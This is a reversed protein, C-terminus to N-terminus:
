AASITQRLGAAQVNLRLQRSRWSLGLLVLALAMLWVSGPEPVDIAAAFQAGLIAHGATTPHVGDWFLWTDPDCLNNADELHQVCQQTVNKMGYKSPNAIVAGLTGFTDFQTIEVQNMSQDLETLALALAANFENTIYTMVADDMFEPTHGLDPMNPVLFHTAGENILTSIASKINTVGVEILKDIPLKLIANSFVDNPFAWVVFLSEDPKFCNTCNDAFKDVQTALGGQTGFWSRLDDPLTTNFASLNTTGTTAGGLAYNTGGSNSPKFSTNGPNYAQWLYEVATPGNSYRTSDYPSPPYTGPGGPGAYNGGDSLSDGFVFLQNLAQL